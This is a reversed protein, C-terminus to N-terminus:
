YNLTSYEKKEELMLRCVLHGRSQLESTHEESRQHHGTCATWVPHPDAHNQRCPPAHLCPLHRQSSVRPLRCLRDGTACRQGRATAGSPYSRRDHHRRCCDTTFRYTSQNKATM